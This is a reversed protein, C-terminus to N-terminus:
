VERPRGLVREEYLRRVEDKRMAERAEIEEASKKREAEYLMAYAQRPDRKITGDSMTRGAGGDAPRWGAGHINDEYESPWVLLIFLILQAILAISQVMVVGTIDDTAIALLHMAINLVGCVPPVLFLLIWFGSFGGDHLRRITVALMPFFKLLIFYLTFLSFPDFAFPNARLVPDNIIFWYDVAILATMVITNFLVTWWYEARCARGRFQFPRSYVAGVATLPGMM